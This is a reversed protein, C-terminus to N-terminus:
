SCHLTVLTGRVKAANLKNHKQLHAAIADSAAAAAADDDFASTRLIADLINEQLPFGDRIECV